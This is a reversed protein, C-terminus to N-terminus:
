VHAIIHCFDRGVAQLNQPNVEQGKIYKPIKTATIQRPMKSLM